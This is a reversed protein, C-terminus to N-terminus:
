EAPYAELVERRCSIHAFTMGRDEYELEGRQNDYPDARLFKKPPDFEKQYSSNAVMRFPDLNGFYFERKEENGNRYGSGGFSCDAFLWGYPAAYFQAWDHSGASYPTAYLGSQWRAPIKLIRCLTIFLLAQVGCDGKGGLAAYEPINEIAFYERMYSYTIKTTIYDYVRKALLYPNKEEGAIEAALARLFPTFRIHPEQESLDAACVLASNEYVLYEKKESTPVATKVGPVPKEMIYARGDEDWALAPQLVAAVVEPDPAAYRVESDFEYEVTFKHNERIDEAFSVTRQAEEEGAIRFPESSTSLIKINSYQECNKPVPIHALIKGPAFADEDIWLSARMRFHYKLKKKEKIKHITDMLLRSKKQDLEDEERKRQIEEPLKPMGALLKEEQAAARGAIDKNVALLTDLFSSLYHVEGMVYIWDIRNEEELTRFEEETFDPIRERVMALAEEFTYPYDAELQAMIKKELELKKRLVEPIPQAMRRDILRCAGEFDGYWKKKLIDEPLEASLSEIDTFEHM